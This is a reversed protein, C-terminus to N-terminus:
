INTIPYQFFAPQSSRTVKKLPSSYSLPFLLQATSFVSQCVQCWVSLGSVLWTILSLMELLHQSHWADRFHTVLPVVTNKGSVWQRSMLLVNPLGLSLPTRWFVQGTDFCCFVLCPVGESHSFAASLPNTELICWCSMCSMIWFFGFLGFLFHISSGVLCKDLSSVCITLFCLFFHEIDCM